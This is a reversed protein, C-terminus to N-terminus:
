AHPFGGQQSVSMDWKVKARSRCRINTHHIHRGCCNTGPFGSAHLSSQSATKRTRNVLQCRKGVYGGPGIAGDGCWENWQCYKVNTM